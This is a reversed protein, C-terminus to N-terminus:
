VWRLFPRQSEMSLSIRLSGYQDRKLRQRIQYLASTRMLIKASPGTEVRNHLGDVDRLMIVLRGGQRREALENWKRVM